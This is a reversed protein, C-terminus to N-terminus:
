ARAIVQRQERCESCTAHDQVFDSTVAFASTIQAPHAGKNEMGLLDAICKNCFAAPRKETLFDYITKPVSM